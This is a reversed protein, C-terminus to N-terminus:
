SGAALLAVQEQAQEELRACMIECLEQVSPDAIRYVSYLGDKRRAVFSATRLVRLHKSVNAQSLATSEVLDTVTREGEMLQNLIRLRAPEALVRFRGAIIELVAPTLPKPM